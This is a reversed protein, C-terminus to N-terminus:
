CANFQITVKKLNVILDLQFQDGVCNIIAATKTHLCSSNEATGDKFENNIYLTLHDSLNFFMYHHVVLMAVRVQALIAPLM